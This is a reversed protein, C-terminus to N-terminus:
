GGLTHIGGRERGETEGRYRKDETERIQKKEVRMEETEKVRNRERQWEEWTVEEERQM